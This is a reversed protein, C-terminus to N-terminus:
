TGTPKLATEIREMMQDIQKPEEFGIVFADVYGLGLVFRLSELQKEPTKLTGEALIKMGLIGKGQAHMAKLCGAVQEPTGDMRGADGGVPNIRALDIEVWDTKVATRLPPLGHCSVGVARVLGKSKADSLVDMVPRFDTPWSAKTMCHMLLSDLYDTGLEERFRDIDARAMEATTARTKTQLFLQQRPLKKLASRMYIHSGYQDALDFYRIGRDYAHRVLRIFAEEGLKVQNSSRRVGVSGTGMGLLSTKLGTRGLTVLDAASRLKRPEEAARALLGGAALTGVAAASQGFFDRRSLNSM